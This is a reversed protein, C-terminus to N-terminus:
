HCKIVFPMLLLNMILVNLRLNGKKSRKKRRIRRKILGDQQQSNSRQNNKPIRINNFDNVFQQLFVNKNESAIIFLEYAFDGLTNTNLGFGYDLTTNSTHNM